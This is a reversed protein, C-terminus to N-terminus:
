NDKRPEIQPVSSQSKHNLADEARMYIGDVLVFDDADTEVPQRRSMFNGNDTGFATM